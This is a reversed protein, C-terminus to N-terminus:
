RHAGDVNTRTNEWTSWLWVIYVEIKSVKESYNQTNCFVEVNFKFSAKHLATAHKLVEDSYKKLQLHLDEIRTSSAWLETVHKLTVSRRAIEIAIDESAFEAIWYPQLYNPVFILKISFRLTFCLSHITNAM